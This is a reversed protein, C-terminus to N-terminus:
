SRPCGRRRTGEPPRWGRECFIRRMPRTWLAQRTPTKPGDDRALERTALAKFETVDEAGWSGPYTMPWDDAGVQQWEAPRLEWDDDTRDRINWAYTLLEVARGPVGRCSSFDPPRAADAHQYHAHSGVAVGVLPHTRPADEAVVTREWRQWEGGCHQSLGVFLPAEDGLGITIAEWDGAHRQVLRGGAIPARWEDFSYFFWYQLLRKARRGFPGVPDQVEALRVYAFGDTSRGTRGSLDETGACEDDATPCELTYCPEPRGEPCATPLGRDLGGAPVTEQGAALPWPRLRATRVYEDVPVPRWRQDHSFVLVPMFTEILEDDSMQSVPKPPAAALRGSVDTPARAVELASWGLAGALVITSAVAVALGSRFLRQHMREGMRPRTLWVAADQLVRARRWVDRPVAALAEAAVTAALLGVAIAFWTASALWDFTGPEGLLQEELLLRVLGILLVVAILGRAISRMYGAIRLLLALCWALAAIAAFTLAGGGFEDVTELAGGVADQVGPVASLLAVVLGAAGAVAIVALVSWLAIRVADVSRRWDAAAWPILLLAIAAGVLVQVWVPLGLAGILVVILTPLVLPRLAVLLQTLAPAWGLLVIAAALAAGLVPVLLAVPVLLVIAVLRLVAVTQPRLRATRSAVARSVATAYGDAKAVLRDARSGGAPDEM